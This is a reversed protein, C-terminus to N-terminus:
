RRLRMVTMQPRNTARGDRRHLFEEAIVQMPESAPQRGAPTRETIGPKKTDAALKGSEYAVLRDKVSAFESTTVVYQDKNPLITEIEQKISGIREGTPPHDTFLKSVTGPRTREKAQLKEFFSLLASPDYGAKYLM